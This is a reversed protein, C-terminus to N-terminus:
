GVGERNTLWESLAPRHAVFLERARRDESYDIAAHVFVADFSRRLRVSRMDGCRHKCDPNFRRSVDLMAESLDVITMDAM